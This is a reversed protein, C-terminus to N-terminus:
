FLPSWDVMRVGDRMGPLWLFGCVKALEKEIEAARVVIPGRVAYEMAKVHPNLTELTLVKGGDVGGVGGGRGASSTMSRSQDAAALSSSKTPPGAAAGNVRVVSVASMVPRSQVLRRGSACVM